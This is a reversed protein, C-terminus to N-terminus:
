YQVQTFGTAHLALSAGSQKSVGSSFGRAKRDHSTKFFVRQDIMTFTAM